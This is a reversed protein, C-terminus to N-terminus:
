SLAPFDPIFLFCLALSLGTALVGPGFGGIGAAVLIAPVFFLYPGRDQLLPELLMRATLAIVVAAAAIGCLVINQRALVWRGDANPAGDRSSKVALEALYALM